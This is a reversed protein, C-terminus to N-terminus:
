ALAGPVGNGDLLCVLDSDREAQFREFWLYGGALESCMGDSLLMMVFLFILVCVLNYLYISPFHLNKVALFLFWTSYM